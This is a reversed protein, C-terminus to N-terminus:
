VWVMRPRRPIYFVVQTIKIFQQIKKSEEYDFYNM